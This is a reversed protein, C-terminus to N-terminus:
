GHCVGRKLHRTVHSQTSYFDCNPCKQKSMKQGESLKKLEEPSRIRKNHLALHAVLKRKHEKTKPKKYNDTNAKPKSLALKHEESKRVGLRSESQKKRTKESVFRGRKDWTNGGQGEEICMNAFEKSEVINMEISYQKAIKAFENKDTTEFLIETHVNNGHKKIHNKWRIGSGKYEFSDQTTKGLYKLGTDKHTKLYLFIKKDM